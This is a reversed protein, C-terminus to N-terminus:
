AKYLFDLWNKLALSLDHVKSSGGVKVKRSWM